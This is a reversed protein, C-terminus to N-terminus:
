GKRVVGEEDHVGWRLFEVLVGDGFECGVERLEFPV